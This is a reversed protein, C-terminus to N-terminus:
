KELLKKLPDWYYSSWGEKVSNYAGEPVDVHTFKIMTGEEVPEFILTITSYYGKPWNEGESRWTQIIKKDQILEVNKGSIDGEFVSFSGSIERSILAKSETFKSHTKSDMFAEYIEHPTSKIIIEQEIVKLKKM